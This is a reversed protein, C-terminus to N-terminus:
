SSSHLHPPSSTSRLSRVAVPQAFRSPPSRVHSTSTPSMMERFFRGELIGSATSPRPSSRTREASRPPRPPPPGSTKVSNTAYSQYWHERLSLSPSPQPQPQPQSRHTVRSLHSVTSASGGSSTSPRSSRSSPSPATPTHPSSRTDTGFHVYGDEDISTKGTSTSSTRATQVVRGLAQQSPLKYTASDHLESGYQQSIKASAGAQDWLADGNVQEDDKFVNDVGVPRRGRRQAEGLGGSTAHAAATTARVNSEFSKSAPEASFITSRSLSLTPTSGKARTSSNVGVGAVIGAPESAGTSSSGARRRTTWFMTQSDDITDHEEGRERERMRPSAGASTHPRRLGLM